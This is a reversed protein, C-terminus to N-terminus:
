MVLAPRACTNVTIAIVSLDFPMLPMEANTTSRPKLPKEMPFFSSLIPMCPQVVAIAALSNLVNHRGPLNLTVEEMNHLSGSPGVGSGINYVKFGGAEWQERMKIFGEATATMLERTFAAAGGELRWLLEYLFIAPMLISFLVFQVADTWIVAKVGGVYTYLLSLIVFLLIAPIPNRISWASVNM